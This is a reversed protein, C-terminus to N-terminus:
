LLLSFSFFHFGHVTVLFLCSEIQGLKTLGNTIKNVAFNNVKLLECYLKWIYVGKM